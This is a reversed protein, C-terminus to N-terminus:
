KQPSQATAPPGLPASPQLLVCFLDGRASEITQGRGTDRLGGILAAANDAYGKRNILIAQFGGAELRAIMEAPKLGGTEHRWADEARGKDSGYSFRLGRSFLYPRMQEYDAMNVIPGNEPFDAVPLQFIMSQPPLARTLRGVFDRDSDIVAATAKLGAERPIKPVQDAIAVACLFIALGVRAAPSWARGLRSLNRVLFLLVLALIWISFRNTGRFLEFGFLGLLCNWGGVASYALIWIIELMGGSMPRAPRSLVNFISNWVLWLLACIGIVGLYSSKFGEGQSGTLTGYRAGQRAMWRVRHDPPPIFLEVPKLAYLELGKYIRLAAARNEGHVAQYYLTGLNMLLFGCVAAAGVALPALLKKWPAPRAQGAAERRSSRLRILQALFAFGTFQLFMNTYYPNQIGTVFGAALAFWFRKGRPDLGRRSTMWWCVLICLPIHWCYSLTAHGWLDRLCAYTSFAFIVAGAFAWEWALRLWRCTLYFSVGALVKGILATLNCAAFLGFMRALCGMFFILTSETVPFDNWNATGPAGLSPNYKPLVPWYHGEAADKVQAMVFFNDGGYNLPVNWSWLSTRHNMVCWLIAIVAALMPIRLARPLTADPLNRFRAMRPSAYRFLSSAPLQFSGRLPGILKRLVM